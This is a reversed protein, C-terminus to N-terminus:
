RRRGWGLTAGLYATWVSYWHDFPTYADQPEDGSSPGLRSYAGGLAVGVPFDRFPFARLELGGSFGLQGKEAFLRNDTTAGETETRARGWLFQPQFSLAVASSGVLHVDAGFGLLSLRGMEEFSEVPCNNPDILGGCVQGTGDSTRQQRSISVMINVRSGAGGTILSLMAGIPQNLQDHTTSSFTGAVTLRQAAGSTAALLHFAAACTALRITHSPTFPM